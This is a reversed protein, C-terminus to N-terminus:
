LRIIGYLQKASLKMLLLSVPPKGTVPTRQTTVTIGLYSTAIRLSKTHVSPEEQHKPFSVTMWLSKRIMLICKGTQSRFKKEPFVSSENSSFSARMTPINLFLSTLVNLTKQKRQSRMDLCDNRSDM